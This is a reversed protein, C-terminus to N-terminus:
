TMRLYGGDCFRGSKPFGPVLGSESPQNTVIESWNPAIRGRIANLLPLFFGLDNRGESHAQSRLRHAMHRRLRKRRSQNADVCDFTTVVYRAM